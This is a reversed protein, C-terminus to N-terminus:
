PIISAVYVRNLPRTSVLGKYNQGKSDHQGMGRSGYIGARYSGIEGVRVREARCVTDVRVTLNIGGGGVVM